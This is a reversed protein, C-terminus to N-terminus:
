GARSVHVAPEGAFRRRYGVAGAVSSALLATALLARAVREQDDRQSMALQGVGEEDTRPFLFGAEQGVVQVQVQEQEEFGAGVQPQVQSQAQIQSQIQQAPPPNAPVPPPVPNPFLPPVVPPFQQRPVVPVSSCEVHIVARSVPGADVQGNVTVDASAPATVPCSVVLDRTLAHPASLDLRDAGGGGTALGAPDVVATHVIGETPLARLLSLVMPAPGAATSPCVLPDGPHPEYYEPHDQSRVASLRGDGNCDAGGPGALALTGTALQNADDYQAQHENGNDAEGEIGIVHVGSAAYDRALGVIDPRGTKPDDRTGKPNRFPSDTAHVVIRLAGSRFDAQQGPAISCGQSQPAVDCLSGVPAVQNPEGKGTLTQELAIMMTENGAGGTASVAALKDALLRAPALDLLRQYRPPDGETKYIGLGAWLDVGDAELTTITENLSDRLRGIVDDMSKSTDLLFYVDVRRPRPPVKLDLHVPRSQGPALSVTLAGPTMAVVPDPQAPDTFAPGIPLPAPPGPEIEAGAYRWVADASNGYFTPQYRLDASVHFPANIGAPTLPDWDGDEVHLHYVGPESGDVPATSAVLINPASGHVISEVPAELGSADEVTWHGGDDTSTLAKIRGATNVAFALPRAAVSGTHFVDLATVTGAAALQEATPVAGTWTRGGDTSHRLAGGSIEWVVSPVFPDLALATVLPGQVQEVGPGRATWTVADETGYLVAHQGTGDDVALYAFEPNVQTVALSVPRGVNPLGSDILTFDATAGTKSLVVHPRVGGGALNEEVQLWIAHLALRSGPAVMRTIRANAATITGFSGGASSPLSWVQTWTCGADESRMVTTGNTVWIRAPDLGSVAYSSVQDPAGLTVAPFSPKRIKQWDKVRTIQGKIRCDPLPGSPPREEQFVTGPPYGNQTRVFWVDRAVKDNADTPLLKTNNASWVISLRSEGDFAAGLRDGPPEATATDTVPSHKAFSELLPGPGHDANFVSGVVEWPGDSFQRIYGAIGLRGDPAATIEVERFAGHIDDLRRPATWSRGGDASHVLDVPQKLGSGHTVAVFVQGRPDVTVSPTGAVSGGFSPFSASPVFDGSDHSAVYVHPVGGAACAVAYGVRHRPAAGTCTAGAFTAVQVFSAGADTSVLVATGQVQPWLVLLHGAGHALLRPRGTGAGVQHTPLVTDFALKGLGSAKWRLFSLSGAHDDVVYVNGADDAAVDGGFGPEQTDLSAPLGPLDSWTLGHDSSWWRWAAARTPAGSRSDPSGPETDKRAVAYQNGFTDAAVAPALGGEATRTIKVELDFRTAGPRTDQGEHAYSSSAAASVLLVAAAVYAKLRV